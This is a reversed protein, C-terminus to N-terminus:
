PIPTFVATFILWDNSPNDSGDITTQLVKDTGIDTDVGAKTLTWKSFIWGTAEIATLIIKEGDKVTYAPPTAVCGVAEVPSVATKFQVILDPTVVGIGTQIKQILSPEDDMTTLNEAATIIDAAVVNAIHNDAFVGKYQNLLTLAM